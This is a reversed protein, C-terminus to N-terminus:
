PKLVQSCITIVQLASLFVSAWDRFGILTSGRPPPTQRLLKLVKWIIRIAVWISFWQDDSKEQILKDISTNKIM